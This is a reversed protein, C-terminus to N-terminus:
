RPALPKAPNGVVTAGCSRKEHRGCGNRRDGRRRHDLTRRAHGAEAGRRHRYVRRRPDPRKRQLVGRRL